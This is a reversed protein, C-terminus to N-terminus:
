IAESTSGPASSEDHRRGRDLVDAALTELVDYLAFLAAHSEAVVRALFADDSCGQVYHDRPQPDRVTLPSPSV